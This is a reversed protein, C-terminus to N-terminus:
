PATGGTKGARSGGALLEYNYVIKKQGIGLQKSGSTLVAEEDPYALLFATYFAEKSGDYFYIM